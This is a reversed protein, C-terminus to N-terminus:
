RANRVVRFGIEWDSKSPDISQEMLRDAANGTGPKLRYAKHLQPSDNDSDSSWIAIETLESEKIINRAERLITRIEDREPLRYGNRDKVYQLDGNDSVEYCVDYGYLRNLWNCYLAADNWTVSVAARDLGREARSFDNKGHVTAYSIYDRNKVM